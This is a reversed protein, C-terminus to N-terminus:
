TTVNVAITVPELYGSRAPVDVEVSLQSTGPTVATLMGSVTATPNQSTPSPLVFGSPLGDVGAFAPPWSTGPTQEVTQGAVLFAMGCRSTATLKFTQGVRISIHDTEAPLFTATAGGPLTAGVVMSGCWEGAVQDDSSAPVPSSYVAPSSPTGSASASPATSNKASSPKCGVLSVLAVAVGACVRM